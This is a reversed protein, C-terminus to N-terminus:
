RITSYVAQFGYGESRCMGIYGLYPLIGGGRALRKERNSPALLHFVYISLNETPRLHTKVDLISQDKFRTGKCVIIEQFLIEATFKIMPYHLNRTRHFDGHM